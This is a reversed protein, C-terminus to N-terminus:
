PAKEVLAVAYAAIGEGRGLAGLGENTTAQIGVQDQDIDLAQALRRRMTDTYPAIHPGEAVIVADVNGIRWGQAWLEEAVQRLLGLSSVGEYRPDQPPFHAGIDRLAAAGLLADVIAHSVVDGDSHGLLGRADAIEVGALVLRRGASLPHIDYGMGVRM